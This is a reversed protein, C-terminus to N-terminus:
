AAPVQRPIQRHLALDPLVFTGANKDWHVLTRQAIHELFGAQEGMEVYLAVQVVTQAAHRRVLAAHRQVLGDGHQANGVQEFAAAVRQRAPLPLAHRDCACQGGAWAQQQHVLRQGRQIHLALCFDQGVELAQM